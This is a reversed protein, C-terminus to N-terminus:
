RDDASRYGIAFGPIGLGFDPDASAPRIPVSLTAENVSCMPKRPSHGADVGIFRFVEGCNRCSVNLDVTYAVVPGDDVKTLRHVDARVNFDDHPCARDPDAPTM